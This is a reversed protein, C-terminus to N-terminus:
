SRKPCVDAETIIEVKESPEYSKMFEELSPIENNIEQVLEVQRKNNTLNVLNENVM